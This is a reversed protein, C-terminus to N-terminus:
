LKGITIETRPEFGYIKKLTQVAIRSDNKVATGELADGVVKFLNDNDPKTDKLIIAGAELEALKKKREKRGAATITRRAAKQRLEDERKASIPVGLLRLEIVACLEDVGFWKCYGRVVNKGTYKDVWQTTRASELRAPKQMRKRRPGHVKKKKGMKKIYVYLDTALERTM